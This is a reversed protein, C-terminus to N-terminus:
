GSSPPPPPAAPAAPPAPPAATASPAATARKTAAAPKAAARKAAPRKGGPVLLMTVRRGERRFDQEVRSVDSLGQKINTLVKEGEEIHALERGRFRLTFQVRDGRTLFERAHDVKIKLDHESIKPTRIRIQKMETEHRRTKSRQEKKRQAYKWKGYDMIRCVPPRAQPAVEVLDLGAAAARALADAIEVIGVQQDNEDILRV